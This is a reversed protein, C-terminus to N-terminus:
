RQIKVTRVIGYKMMGQKIMLSNCKPVKKVQLDDSLDM